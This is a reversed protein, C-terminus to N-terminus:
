DEQHHDFNKDLKITQLLNGIPTGRCVTECSSSNLINITRYVREMEPTYKEAGHDKFSM